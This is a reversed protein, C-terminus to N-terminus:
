YNVKRNRLIVKTEVEIAEASKGNYNDKIHFQVSKIDKTADGSFNGSSGNADYYSFIDGIQNHRDLLVITKKHAPNYTYSPPSGSAPIKDALLRKTTSEYRYTVKSLQADQPSFYAYITLSMPSADDIRTGSRIVQSMRQMVLVQQNIVIARSQMRWLNRLTDNFFLVTTISIISILGLVIILEM